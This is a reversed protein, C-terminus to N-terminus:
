LSEEGDEEVPIAVLGVTGPGLNAAVPISLESIVIEKTNLFTKAKEVLKQATIPDAAHVIAVRVLHDGVKERMSLIIRDLAKQRSRVRDGMQ